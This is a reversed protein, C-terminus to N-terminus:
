KAAGTWKAQFTHLFSLAFVFAQVTFIVMRETLGLVNWENAMGIPTLPGFITILVAAALSIYGPLRLREKKLYGYAIFYLSFITTFVVIVTVILHMLNQFSMVTKDGSLPFLAYGFISTVAMILFIIYGIKTPTHYLAFAKIVLGIAFLTFCIGYVMTFIRLLGANPAGDATLTSVDMAIPDYAPWLLQGAFVHILYAIVSVMGLPMLYKTLKM